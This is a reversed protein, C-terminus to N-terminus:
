YVVIVNTFYKRYKKLTEDTAEDEKGRLIARNNPVISDLGEDYFRTKNGEIDYLYAESMFGTDLGIAREIRMDTINKLAAVAETYTMPISFDIIGITPIDQYTGQILFRLEYKAGISSTFDGGPRIYSTQQFLSTKEQKIDEILTETKNQESLSSLKINGDQDILVLGNLGTDTTSSLQGVSVGEDFSLGQIVKHDPTFAGAAIFVPSHGTQSLSHRMHDFDILSDPKSTTSYFIDPDSFKTAYKIRFSDSNPHTIYTGIKKNSSNKLEYAQYGNQYTTPLPSLTLAVGRDKKMFRIFTLAILLLTILILIRKRQHIM